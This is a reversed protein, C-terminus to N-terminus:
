LPMVRYLVAETQLLLWPGCYYIRFSLPYLQPCLTSFGLSMNRHTDGSTPGAAAKHPIHPCSDPSIIEVTFAQSIAFFPAAPNTENCSFDLSLVQLLPTPCKTRHLSWGAGLWRWEAGSLLAKMKECVNGVGWCLFSSHSLLKPWSQSGPVSPSREVKCSSLTLPHFTGADQPRQSPKTLSLPVAM